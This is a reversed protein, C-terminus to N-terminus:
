AAAGARVQRLINRAESTCERLADAGSRDHGYWERDFLRTLRILEPRWQVDPTVRAVYEWNTRGKHHHLLGARFLAVLVAHYWARIAERLRGAAALEAAYREWEDQERSLPDADRQSSAVPESAAVEEEPVSRRLAAVALLALVLAVAAVLVGVMWSTGGAPVPTALARRPWLDSLWDWFRRLADTISKWISAVADLFRQPLSPSPLAGSVAGGEAIAPGQEARQARRLLEPDPAAAKGAPGDLGHLVARVRARAPQATEARVAAVADALAPDIAVQEEGFQVRASRLAEGRASAGSLDAADLAAEIARLEQRFEDVTLVRDQARASVALCAAAAALAVARGSV